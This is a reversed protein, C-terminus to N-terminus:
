RLELRADVSPGLVARKLAQPTVPVASSALCNRPGHASLTSVKASGSRATTLPSPSLSSSANTCTLTSRATAAAASPQSGISHRLTALESALAMLQDAGSM